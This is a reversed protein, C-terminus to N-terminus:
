FLRWWIAERRRYSGTHLDVDREVESRFHGALVSVSVFVAGSKPAVMLEQPALRQWTIPHEMQVVGHATHVQTMGRVKACDIKTAIRDNGCERQPGCHAGDGLLKAM